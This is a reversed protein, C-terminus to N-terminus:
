GRYTCDIQRRWIFIWKDRIHSKNEIYICIKTSEEISNNVFIEKALLTEIGKCSDKM